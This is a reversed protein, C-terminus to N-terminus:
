PWRLRYYRQPVAPANTDTFLYRPTAPGLSQWDMLNTTYEVSFAGATYNSLAFTVNTGGLGAVNTMLLYPSNAFYNTQVANLETGDVIGDGNIDGPIPGNPPTIVSNFAFSKEPAFASGAFATDIAQVSWYLPQQQPLNFITRILNHQANGTEVVRRQGSSAAMPGVLDGAGPSSGVRLNYTLGSAPTQADSAANWSFTVTNENATLVLGSPAAPPTNALPTNNRWIQTILPNPTNGCLLIDLRGDNDYDGWVASGGYVGPLGANINTFGSGTNRWIECIPFFSGNTTGALLIDLRGDNDYDGWAASGEDVGPLGANINTFGNGTNRWVQTVNTLGDTSFGTLLIDPLGDNDYDGWAVSGVTVGPLGVNVNTFGDGTNRWLQTVNTDSLFDPSYTEGIFLLDLRGDNDYDAWATATATVQPISASRSIMFGNGTNRWLNIYFSTIGTPPGGNLLIDPRGDNDFDAWSGGNGFSAVDLLQLGANINMFGSGTNRWVQAKAYSSFLIDLRGDNDYDFFSFDLDPLGTAIVNTFNTGTNRWLETNNTGVNVYRRLLVDLRGDNDFDGWAASVAGPLQAGIDYFIPTMFSQDAGFALGLSNTVITRFHYITDGVLGSISQNFNTSAVSGGFSMAATRNGYSTTTGWEFWGSTPLGSSSASGNLSAGIATVGNAPLTVARQLNILLDNTSFQSILFPDNGFTFVRVEDIEGPFRPGAAAITFGGSPALPASTTTTGSAIGNVYLTAVGNARILALHTWTGATPTGNGFIGVGGFVCFYLGSNQIIGWGNSSVNGNYAIYYGNVTTDPKVWAEIGFNDVATSVVGNSLYQSSGNFQMALSSGINNSAGPSVANTYLPSGFQKLNEFGMLDTANTAAQGNAAGPDNEGLRYWVVNTVTAHVTTLQLNLISFLVLLVFLNRIPNIM